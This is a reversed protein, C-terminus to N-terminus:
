HKNRRHAIASSEFMQKLRNFYDDQDKNSNVITTVSTKQENSCCFMKELQGTGRALLLSTFFPSLRSLYALEYLIMQRDIPISHIPWIMNVILATGYNLISLACHVSVVPLFLRTMEMTEEIQFKVSLSQNTAIFLMNCRNRSLKPGRIRKRYCHSWFHLFLFFIVGFCQTVLMYFLMIQFTSINSTSRITTVALRDDWDVGPICLLVLIVSFLTTTSLLIVAVLAPKSSEEYNSIRCVCVVREICLIIISSNVGMLFIGNISRLSFLIPTPWLRDCPNTYPFSILDIPYGDFPWEMMLKGKKCCKYIGKSKDVENEFFLAHCDKCEEILDKVDYYDIDKENDFPVRGPFKKAHKKQKRKRKMQETNLKKRLKSQLSTEKEIRKKESEAKTQLRTEHEEKTENSRKNTKYDKVGQLRKEYQDETENELSKRKWKNQDIRIGETTLKGKAKGKPRGRKRPVSDSTVSSIRSRKNSQSVKSNDDSEENSSNEEEEQIKLIKKKEEESPRREVKIKRKINETVINEKEVMIFDQRSKYSYDNNILGELIQLIRKREHNINFDKLLTKENDLLFSETILCVHFGCNYGDLQKNVTYLCDEEYNHYENCYVDMLEIEPDNHEGKTLDKVACRIYDKVQVMEEDNSNTGISDYYQVSRGRRYIGLTWHDKDELFVPIIAIEFNDLDGKYVRDNLKKNRAYLSHLIVVNRNCKIRILNLFAFLVDDNMWEEDNNLLTALRMPSIFSKYAYPDNDSLVNDSNEELSDDNSITLDVINSLDETLDEETTKHILDETKKPRGRGRKILNSPKVHDEPGKASLQVPEPDEVITKHRIVNTKQPRGRGLKNITSPEVQDEPGKASLQVPGPDEGITKHRIVNTKKPRGRGRKIITSPEVQDLQKSSDSM